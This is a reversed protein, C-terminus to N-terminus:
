NEEIMSIIIDPHNSPLGIRFWIVPIIPNPTNYIWALNKIRVQSKNIYDLWIMPFKNPSYLPMSSPIFRGCLIYKEPIYYNGEYLTISEGIKGEAIIEGTEKLKIEINKM